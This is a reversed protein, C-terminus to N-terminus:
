RDRNDTVEPDPEVGLQIPGWGDLEGAKNVRLRTAVVIEKDLSRWQERSLRAPVNLLAEGARKKIQNLYAKRWRRLTDLAKAAERAEERKRRKLRRKRAECGARGDKRNERCKPM